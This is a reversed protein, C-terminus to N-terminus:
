QPVANCVKQVYGSNNYGDMSWYGPSVGPVPRVWLTFYNGNYAHIWDADGYYDGGNQPYQFACYTGYTSPVAPSSGDNVWNSLQAQWHNYAGPQKGNLLTLGDAVNAPWSWYDQDLSIRSPPELQMLGIGDPAGWLPYGFGDYQRYSSEQSVLNRIFWPGSSVYADITSPSPNSGNIFFGLTSSQNVGNFQWSVTAGGGHTASWSVTVAQNGPENLADYEAWTTSGAQDTYNVDVVYSVTDCSSGGNVSLVTNPMSPVTTISLTAGQSVTSGGTTVVLMQGSAAATTALVLLTLAACNGTLCRGCTRVLAFFAEPNESLSATRVALVPPMGPSEKRSTLEREKTSSELVRM